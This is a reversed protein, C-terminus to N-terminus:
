NGFQKLNEEHAGVILRASEYPSPVYTFTYNAQEGATEVTLTGYNFLRSFIGKQVVTVDQVDGISLQSIKRSIINSYVVQALKENTVFIVNSLYVLAGIFTLVLGFLGLIIGAAVMISSFGSGAELGLEPASMGIFILLTAVAVSTTIGIVEVLVLGFPHKRIEAVLEEQDDFEILNFYRRGVPSLRRSAQERHDTTHM